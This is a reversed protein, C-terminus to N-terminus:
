VIIELFAQIRTKLAGVAAMTYDSEIHLVPLGGKELYDRLDPVDFEHLDCFKMVYLIVGDVSFEKAFDRIHGFREELDQQYTAWGEGKGRITRPCMVRDLYRVSLGDLPDPSKDVDHWLYRTGLCLDDIVVNGGSDEILKFFAPHDIEPGWVLLRKKSEPTDSREKVETIVGRLLQNAEEPPLSAVAILIQIVESGYLLPPEPKRLQYLERLLARQRNHLDIAQQLKQDSIETQVLKEVSKKFLVLEEKFFKFCAEDLFNPVNIRYTYPSPLNYTWIRYLNLRSDCSDPTVWGDLFDYAGKLAADFCSKVFPCLAPDCYAHASTVTDTLNGMIRYPVLDVATLIELPFYSCFYGIIRKGHNKLERVRRDRNESLKKAGELWGQGEQKMKVETINAWKPM